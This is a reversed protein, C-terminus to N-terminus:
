PNSDGRHSSSSMAGCVWRPRIPSEARAHQEAYEHASNAVARPCRMSSIVAIPMRPNPTPANEAAIGATIRVTVGIPSVEFATAKL